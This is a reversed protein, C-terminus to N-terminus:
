WVRDLPLLSAGPKWVARLVQEQAPTTGYRICQDVLAIVAEAQAVSDREMGAVPASWADGHFVHLAAYAVPLKAEQLLHWGMASFGVVIQPREQRVWDLWDATPCPGGHMQRIRPTVAQIREGHHTLAAHWAGLRAHDDMVMPKHLPLSLGIRRYGACVIRDLVTWMASFADGHAVTPHKTRQYQMSGAQIAVLPSWDAALCADSASRADLIIARLGESALRRAVLPIQDDDPAPIERLHYGRQSAVSDLMAPSAFSSRGSIIGIQVHRRDSSRFRSAGLAALEPRPVYGLEDAIARVRDRTIPAVKLSGRLALSATSPAVRAIRAIDNLSPLMTM